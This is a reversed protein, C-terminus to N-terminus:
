VHEHQREHAILWQKTAVGDGASYQGIRGDAAVVRHCPIIIPFPNKRCAQGIARASSGIARAIAGYSRVEGYPVSNIGARLAEGRGPMPPLPLDFRRLGGDFYAVLQALIEIMLPSPEAGDETGGNGGGIRLARLYHADAHIAIIGIPSALHTLKM